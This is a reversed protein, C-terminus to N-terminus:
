QYLKQLKAIDCLSPQSAQALTAFMVDDPHVSHQVLGLAHGVEHLCLAQVEARTMTLKSKPQCTLLLIRAHLLEKGAIKYSTQGGASEALMKDQRDTWACEIDANAASDVFEFSLVGARGWALFSSRLIQDYQSRYAAIQGPKQIFVKLHKKAWYCNSADPDTKLDAAAKLELASKKKLELQLHRSLSAIYSRDAAEPFLSLYKQYLKIAEDYNGQLQYSAALTQLITPLEPRLEYAYLLHALAEKARGTKNLVLGLNCRAAPLTPDFTIAQNLRGEAEEYAGLLILRYALENLSVAYAAYESATERLSATRPSATRSSANYICSDSGVPVGAYNNFGSTVSDLQSAGSSGATAAASSSATAIVITPALFFLCALALSGFAAKM